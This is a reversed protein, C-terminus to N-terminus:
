DHKMERLTTELVLDARRGPLCFEISHNWKKTLRKRFVRIKGFLDNRARIANEFQALLLLRDMAASAIAAHREGPKRWLEITARKSVKKLNSKHKAGQRFERAGVVFKAVEM